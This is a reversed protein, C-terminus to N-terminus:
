RALAPYTFLSFHTLNLVFHTLVSGQLGGWRYAAGYGIGAIGALVILGGGGQFHALGFLVAAILIALWRGSPGRSFLRYPWRSFLRDLNAQLYGRFLAEEPFAVLLLNNIAWIWGSTPWKPEWMMFRLLFAVGICVMITVVAALTVKLRDAKPRSLEVSTSAFVIWYAVLPKDLNLKMSFPIADPTFNTADIVLPNHFGPVRHVFLAAALLVFVVHGGIRLALQRQPSVSAAAGILLVLFPLAHIDIEGNIFALLYGIVLFGVATLRLGGLLFLTGVLIFGWQVITM